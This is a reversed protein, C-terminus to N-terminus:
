NILLYTVSGLFHLVVWGWTWCLETIQLSMLQFISKLGSLVLHNILCCRATPLQYILGVDSYSRKLWSRISQLLVVLSFNQYLFFTEYSTFTIMRLLLLLTLIDPPSPNFIVTFSYTYLNPLLWMVDHPTQCAPYLAEIKKKTYHSWEQFM